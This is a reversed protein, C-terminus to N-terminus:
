GARVRKRVGEAMGGVSDRASSLASFGAKAASQGAPTIALLSVVIVALYGLKNSTAFRVHRSAAVLQVEKQQPLAAGLVNVPWDFVVGMETSLPNWDPPEYVSVHMLSGQPKIRVEGQYDTVHETKKTLFWLATHKVKVIAGAVAEGDVDSVRLTAM